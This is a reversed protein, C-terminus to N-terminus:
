VLRLWIRGGGSREALADLLEKRAEKTGEGEIHWEGLWGGGIGESGRTRVVRATWVYKKVVAYGNPSHPSRIKTSIHMLTLQPIDDCSSASICRLTLMISPSPLSLPDTLPLPDSLWYPILGNGDFLLWIKENSAPSTTDSGEDPNPPVFGLNCVLDGISMHDWLGEDILQQECLAWSDSDPNLTSCPVFVRLVPARIRSISLSLDHPSTMRQPTPSAGPSGGSESPSSSSLPSPSHGGSISSDSSHNVAAFRRRPLKLSEGDDSYWGQAGSDSSNFQTRRWSSSYLRLSRPEPLPPPEPAGKKRFASLRRSSKSPTNVDNSSFMSSASDASPRPCASEVGRTTHQTPRSNLQRHSYSLPAPFTLERLSGSTFPYRLQRRLEEPEPPFPASSSHVLSQLLLIFRSHAKALSIFKATIENQEPSPTTTSLTKLAHMPYKHLPVKQSILLLNLDHLCIDIQVPLESIRLAVAYGPVFRSLISNRLSPIDFLQYCTTCTNFLSPHTTLNAVRPHPSSTRSSTPHPAGSPPSHSSEPMSISDPGCDPPPTQPLERTYYTSPNYLRSTSSLPSAYPSSNSSSRYFSSPPHPPSRLPSSALLSM